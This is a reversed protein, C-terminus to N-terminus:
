TSALQDLEIAEDALLCVIDGRIPYLRARDTTVLGADCPELKTEGARNALREERIAANIQQVLEEDAWTLGCHSLPCRLLRLFDKDIM